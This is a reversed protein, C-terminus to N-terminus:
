SKIANIWKLLTEEFNERNIPKTIYDNMGINLCVQYEDSIAGATLAIIISETDNKRIEKTAEYGNLVPMQLDMLIIDPKENLSSHIDIAEQGNKAEFVTANPIIKNVYTKTLLMNIKNDEVIMIKITENTKHVEKKEIIFDFPSNPNNITELAKHLIDIRIPKMISFANVKEIFNLDDSTSNLLIILPINLTALKEIESKSDSKSEFLLCDFQKLDELQYTDLAISNIKYFDLMRKTILISEKQFGMLAVKKIKNNPIKKLNECQKAEVELDFYFVSGEKINDKVHLESGMLQLLNNTIPIGLGTGGYKRTTSNDEQSFAEFIKKKSETKIGIGTDKIRFTFITKNKKASKSTLIELEISGKQTFKVANSMLNVLIQKLRIKDTKLLCPAKEDINVLLKLGKSYASYKIMDTVQSIIDHLNVETYELELKGAEIKSLDLIDNVIELLADASQSVTTLYQEQITNIETKLLLNSFGIIGNLPTRIEHSMNALFQTKALNAAEAAEKQQIAEEAKKRETIDIIVGEIYAIENNIIIAEGYEEVWVFQGNKKCLRTTIQFPKRDQISNEIYKEVGEKEDPHYLDVLSIKNKMFSEKSYGTLEEVGDNFYVSTREPSYKVLYVTAPINNALLKFKEESEKIAKQNEIREITSAINNSFTKLLQMEDSSWIRESTCDDFGIYGYFNKKIFIPFILISLIKQELLIKKFAGEPIDKTLAKFPKKQLIIKFLDPFDSQKFNQLKPNNIENLSENKTWEYVQNILQTKLNNEFYYVRDVNTAQGIQKITDSFISGFDDNKLLNETTKTLSTLIETKYLIEEEVEKRKFTEFALAILDSFIRAFNIEDESWDRYDNISECSSIAILKGSVIIPFDLVSKAHYIDNNKNFESTIPDTKTNSVIISQKEELIKFYKTYNEKTLIKGATHSNKALEFQNFLEIRSEFNSWLSYREVDITKTAKEMMLQVLEKLNSFNSFNLASIENITRTFLIKKEQREFEIKEQERAKTIDRLIAFYGDIKGNENRKISVKQSVWMEEGNIKLIPFDLSDFNDKLPTIKYFNIVEEIYDPRIIFTFHKGILNKIEYGITNQAFMNVFVFHGNKDTEFIIDSAFQVLNEFQREVLIKETVDQGNSIFLNDSQKKDIWQIFKYSGDKCKLKQVYVNDPKYIKNYDIPTIKKEQTIEWFNLGLVEKPTYGLIKEISNACYNINGYKDMAISLSNSNNIVSNAFIIKDKSNLFSIRRSNNILFISLTTIILTIIQTTDNHKILFLTILVILNSIIYLLYQNTKNFLVYSFYLIITYETFTILTINRTFAKYIVIFNFILFLFIFIKKVNITVLKVKEVSFFIILCSIGLFYNTITDSPQRELFLIYITEAVAFLIGFFLFYVKLEVIEEEQDSLSKALEENYKSSKQIALHILFLLLIFFPILIYWRLYFPPAVSFSYNTSQKLLKDLKNVVKVKFTYDGFSLNSYTVEKQLTPKSWNKDIGDLKYTYFFENENSKNIVAYQFTIQNTKSSFNHNNEPVNFWKFKLNNNQPDNSLVGTILLSNSLNKKDNLNKEKFLYLGNITGLYIGGDNDKAQARMNTEIGKFGNKFNYNYINLLNGNSDVNIKDIGLNTGVYINNKSDNILTYILGSTLGNETTYTKIKEKDKVFILESVGAFWFNNNNDKLSIDINHNALKSIIKIKKNEYTMRYLGSNCGLYFENNDLFEVCEINDKKVKNSFTEEELELDFNQDLIKLGTRTGIFYKKNNEKIFNVWGLSINKIKIEQFQGNKLIFIGNDSGVLIEGKSSKFISFAKKPITHQKKLIYEKSKDKAFEFVGKQSIGVFLSNKDFFISFINATKLEPTINFNYFEQTGIKYAGTGFTGIYINNSKDQSFCQVNEGTFGKAENIYEISQKTYKIIGNKNFASAWITGENDYLVKSISFPENDINLKTLLIPNLAESKNFDVLYLEGTKTGIFAKNKIYNSIFCYDKLTKSELKKIKNKKLILIGDNTGLYITKDNTRIVSNYTIENSKLDFLKKLNYNNDLLFVAKSTFCYVGEESSCLKQIFDNIDIKITKIIKLGDYINLGSYKTSFVINKNIDEKIDTIHAENKIIKFNNGDYYSLGAGDTGFWILDRSDQFISVITSAPLGNSQNLIEFDYVQGNAKLSFLLCVCLLKFFRQVM